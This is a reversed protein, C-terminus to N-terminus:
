LDAAAFPVNLSDFSRETTSRCLLARRNRLPRLLSVLVSQCYSELVADMTALSSWAEELPVAVINPLDQYASSGFKKKNGFECSKARRGPNSGAVKGYCAHCNSIERKNAFFRQLRVIQVIITCVRNKKPPGGANCHMSDIATLTTPATPTSGVVLPKFSGCVAWCSCLM